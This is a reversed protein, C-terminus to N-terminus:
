PYHIDGKNASLILLGKESRQPDCDEVRQTYHKSIMTPENAFGEWQDASVYLGDSSGVFPRIFVPNLTNNPSGGLTRVWAIAVDRAERNVAGINVKCQPKDLLSDDFKWFSEIFPEPVDERESPTVKTEIKWCGRQFPFILPEFVWDRGPLADKWIKIRIESPLNRFVTFEPDSAM